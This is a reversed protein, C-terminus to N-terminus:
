GLTARGRDAGVYRSPSLIYDRRAIEDITAAYCFGPINEYALGRSDATGRWRRYIGSITRLDGDTFEVQTRSLRNSALNRANIFLIQDTRDMSGNPGPKKDRSTFWACAPIQPGVFLGEPLAIVCELSDDHVLSKLAERDGPRSEREVCEASVTGSKGHESLQEHTGNLWACHVGVQSEQDTMTTDSSTWGEGSVSTIFMLNSLIFNARLDGFKNEGALSMRIDAEIGRGELNMRCMQWTAFSSTQGNLQLANSPGGHDEFFRKVQVLVEGAGCCPDYVRVRGGLAPDQQPKLIEVLLRAVPLPTHFGNGVMGEARAVSSLLYDCIEGFAERPAGGISAFDIGGIQEALARLQAPSSELQPFDRFLVNRLSPNAAELRRVARSLIQPFAPSWAKALVVPFRSGRPIWFINEMEYFLRQEVLRSGRFGADMVRSRAEFLDSLLKLFVLTLVALKYERPSLHMDSMLTLLRWVEHQEDKVFIGGQRRQGRFVGALVCVTAVYLVGSVVHLKTNGLDINPSGGIRGFDCGGEELM